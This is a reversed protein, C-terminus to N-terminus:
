VINFSKKGFLLVLAVLLLVVSSIPSYSFPLKVADHSLAAVNLTIPFLFLLFKTSVAFVLFHVVRSIFFHKLPINYGSFISKIQMIVSFGCVSIAFIVFYVKFDLNSSAIINVANTVEILSIVACGIYSNVFSLFFTKVFEIIFSFLIVFGSITALANISSKVSGIIDPNTKKVNYKKGNEKLGCSGKYIIFCFLSASASAFFLILGLLSSEFLSFGIVGILFGPGPNVFGPLLRSASQCDIHESDLLNKIILAGCPYGSILSLCFLTLFKPKESNQAIVKSIYDALVLAPFLSPIISDLMLEVGNSVGSITLEQFCLSLILIFIAASLKIFTKIKTTCTVIFLDNRRVHIRIVVSSYINYTHM